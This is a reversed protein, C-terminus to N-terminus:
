KEEKVNALVYKLAKLADERTEWVSIFRGKHCFVAGPIGTIKKLDEELLGAWELPLPIRVKMNNEM